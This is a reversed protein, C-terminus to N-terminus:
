ERFAFYLFTHNVWLIDGIFTVPSLIIKAPIYSTSNKETSDVLIAARPVDGAKQPPVYWIWSGYDNFVCEYDPFLTREGHFGFEIKVVPLTQGPQVLSTESGVPPFLPLDGFRYINSLSQLGAPSIINTEWRNVQRSPDPEYGLMSLRCRLADYKIIVDGGANKTVVPPRYAVTKAAGIPATNNTGAPPRVLDLLEDPTRPSTETAFGDHWMM